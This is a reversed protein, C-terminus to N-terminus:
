EKDLESTFQYHKYYNRVNRGKISTNVNRFIRDQMLHKEFQEIFGRQKPPQVSISRYYGCAKKYVNLPQIYNYEIGKIDDEYTDTIDNQFYQKVYDVSEIEKQKLKEFDPHNDFDWELKELLIHLWASGYLYLKDQQVESKLDNAYKMFETEENFGDKGKKKFEVEFHVIFISKQLAEDNPDIEGVNNFGCDITFHPIISEPKSFLQRCTICNGGRMKKITSGSLKAEPDTIEQLSLFRKKIAGSLAPTPREADFEKKGELIFDPAISGYYDGLSVEMLSDVFGKGNDGKGYNIFIKKMPNEGFLSYSKTKLMVDYKEKSNFCRGVNYNLADIEKQVTKRKMFRGNTSMSTFNKIHHPLPYIKGTNLTDKLNLYCNEFALVYRDNDFKKYLDPKYFHERLVHILQPVFKISDTLKKKYYTAITLNEHADIVKEFKEYLASEEGVAGWKDNTKIQVTGPIYESKDPSLKGGHYRFLGNDDVKKLEAKYYKAWTQAVAEYEKILDNKIRKSLEFNEKGNKHDSWKGNKSCYWTSAAQDFLYEDQYYKEIFTIFEHQSLSLMLHSLNEVIQNKQMRENQVIYCEKGARMVKKLTGMYEFEYSETDNLLEYVENTEINIVLTKKLHIKSEPLTELKLYEFPPELNIIEDIGFLPTIYEKGKMVSFFENIAKIILKDSETEDPTSIGSDSDNKLSSM